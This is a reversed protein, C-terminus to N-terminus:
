IKDDKSYWVKYIILTNGVNLVNINLYSNGFKWFGINM